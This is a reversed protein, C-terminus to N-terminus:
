GRRVYPKHPGATGPSTMPLGSAQNDVTIFQGRHKVAQEPIRLPFTLLSQWTPRRWRRWVFAEVTVRLPMPKALVVEYPGSIFECCVLRTERGQIVISTAMRRSDDKPTLGDVTAVFPVVPPFGPVDLRLRLNIAVAALPRSNTFVLPLILFFESQSAFTYSRPEGVIQLKGARANLLWFSGVTFLLACTAIIDAANM